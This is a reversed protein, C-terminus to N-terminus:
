DLADPAPPLEWSGDLAAARRLLGRVAAALAAQAEEGELDEPPAVRVREPSPGELDPAQPLEIYVADEARHGSCMGWPAGWPTLRPLQQFAEQISPPLAEEIEARLNDTVFGTYAGDSPSNGPANETEAVTDGEGDKGESGERRLSYLDEVAQRFIYLEVTPPFTSNGCEKGPSVELTPCIGLEPHCGSHLQGEPAQWLPLCPCGGSSSDRLHVEM